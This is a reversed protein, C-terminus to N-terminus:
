DMLNIRVPEEFAYSEVLLRTGSVRVAIQIHAFVASVVVDVRTFEPKEVVFPSLKNIKEALDKISVIIENFITETDKVATEQEQVVLKTEEVADVATKSVEKIKDVFGKIEDTSSRSKDALKRIEEAVVAFGRGAEGARAAEISANLSLLQTQETISTITDLIQNIAEMSKNVDKVINGVKVSAEKTRSSRDTM